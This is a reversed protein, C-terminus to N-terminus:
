RAASTRSSSASSPSGGAGAGAAEVSGAVADNYSEEGFEASTALGGARLNSRLGADAGLRSIAAALAAADDRPFILCNHDDRLYEASGGTGTAVVPTGVAMSELPVLGWPEDWRVPFVVVDAAAYVAALEDREVSRLEVRDGVALRDALARLERAYDDDGTGVVTLTAEAPLQALAEVATDVGKRRDIRGVYAMRWGFEERPPRPTFRRSEIGPYAVATRPLPRAELARRRTWESNFLWSGAAGLDVRTPVRTFTEAARAWGRRYFRRAWMDSRMCYVIWDDCIVGAVPVGARRAREILSVSMGGLPWPNLVDPRFERLADDLVALNHREIALRERTGLPPPGEPTHEYFRLERASLIRVEHGRARMHEVASRWTVEYGGMGDPPYTLGISLVRM